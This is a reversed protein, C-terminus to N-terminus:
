RGAGKRRATRRRAALKAEERRLEARRAALENAVELVIDAVDLLDRMRVAEPRFKEFEERRDLRAEFHTRAYWRLLNFESV